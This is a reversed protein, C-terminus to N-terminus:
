LPKRILQDKHSVAPIFCYEASRRSRSSRAMSAPRPWASAARSKPTPVLVILRQRRWRRSRPVEAGFGRGPRVGSIPGACRGAKSAWTRAAGSAVSASWQAAHSRSCPTATLSAVIDRARRRSPQGSL